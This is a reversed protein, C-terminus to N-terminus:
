DVDVAYSVEGESDGREISIVDKRVQGKDLGIEIGGGLNKGM